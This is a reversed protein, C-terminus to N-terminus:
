PLRIGPIQVGGTLRKLQARLEQEVAELQKRQSEIRERGETAVTSVRERAADVQATVLKDVEARVRQEARAVEEGVVAQLRSSVAQDLNSSVALRPAKVTGSLEATVRLDTLGGMVRWVLRELENLQRSATDVSWRVNGSAISWRGRLDEGRLVFTLATRGTGPDVRVPLGPLSFAPLGVGDAVAGISDRTRATLHDLVAAVDLSALARGEARRRATIVTPKGYLAPATTLGRVTAAYAGALLGEAVSFDVTGAELLFAPYHHEKPFRVTSGAMRLRPPGTTERPRLGPPMYRRGLQVWYMAQQFHEISVHGFFAKGIEPAAFSPLQLLSRAFAYDQQRAENVAALGSGLENVGRAADGALTEIQRKTEQVQGINRQVAAVADRTGQIGLARPNVTDLRAVLARASDLTAGVPVARLGRELAQRTSDARAALASAARVTGLKGPDLAIARITDFPTLKLLPVDFQQSWQRVARVLQPAFGNGRAPRAPTDRRTDFRLDRLTLNRVVLKKEALAEPDVTLHISGAEVLNRNLNFPDAVEIRWLDVGIERPRLDLKRVDVQTGLLDTSADETTERAVPEAFLVVLVGTVVLLLLLPGIAKWRFIRVSV